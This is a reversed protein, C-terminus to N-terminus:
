PARGCVKGCESCCYHDGENSQKGELTCRVWSRAREDKTPRCACAHKVQHTVEETALNVVAIGAAVDFAACGSLALLVLM